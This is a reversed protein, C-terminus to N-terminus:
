GKASAPLSSMTSDNARCLLPHVDGFNQVASNMTAFRRLDWDQYDPVTVGVLVSYVLAMDNLELQKTLPRMMFADEMAGYTSEEFEGLLDDACQCNVCAIQLGCSLCECECYCRYIQWVKGREKDERFTARHKYPIFCAILAARVIAAERLSLRRVAGVSELGCARQILRRETETQNRSAQWALDYDGVRLEGFGELALETMM